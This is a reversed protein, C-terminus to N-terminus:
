RVEEPELSEVLTVGPAARLAARATALRGAPVHLVYAGADNPGDVIRAGSARLQRRLQAETVRPDFVIVMNGKVEMAGQTAGLTHYAAPEPRGGLLLAGVLLLAVTQGVIGWRLWAAAQQWGDGLVNHWSRPPRTRRLAQLRGHLRQWSREIDAQAAPEADADGVLLQARWHRLQAAERRCAACQELHREMVIREGAELTGNVFWPLLREVERHGRGEFPLVRGNV